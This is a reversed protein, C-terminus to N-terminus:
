KKNSRLKEVVEQREHDEDVVRRLHQHQEHLVSEPVHGQHVQGELRQVEEDAEHDHDGHQQEAEEGDEHVQLSAHEEVFVERLPIYTHM